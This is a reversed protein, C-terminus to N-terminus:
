SDVDEGLEAEKNLQDEVWEWYGLRTYGNMVDARWDELPYDVHSGWYGGNADVLQEIDPDM